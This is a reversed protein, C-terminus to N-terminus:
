EGHCPRGRAGAGCYECSPRTSCSCLPCSSARRASQALVCCCVAHHRAAIMRWAHFARSTVRATALTACRRVRYMAHWRGRAIAHWAQLCAVADACRRMAGYAAGRVLGLAKFGHLLLRRRALRAACAALFWSRLAFRDRRKRQEGAMRASVAHMQVKRLRSHVYRACWVGRLVSLPEGNEGKDRASAAGEPERPPSTSLTAGEDLVWTTGAPKCPLINERPHLAPECRDRRVATLVGECSARDPVRGYPILPVEVPELPPEDFAASVGSVPILAAGVPEPRLQCFTAPVDINPTSAFSAAEHPPPDVTPPMSNNPMRAAPVADRPPQDLSPPVSNDPVRAVLVAECLPQVFSTAVRDTPMLTYEAPQDLTPLADANPQLAAPMAKNPPHDLSPLVGTNCASPVAEPPPQDVSSLTGGDPKLAAAMAEEPLQYRSPLAGINPKPAAAMAKHPPVGANPKLSITVAEYLPQDFMPLGAGGWATM